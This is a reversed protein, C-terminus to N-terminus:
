LWNKLTKTKNKVETSLPLTQPSTSNKQEDEFWQFGRPEGAITKRPYKIEPYGTLCSNIELINFLEAIYPIEYFDSKQEDEEKGNNCIELQKKKFASIFSEKNLPEQGTEIEGNQTLFNSYRKKRDILFSNEEDIKIEVTGLGLPKGMGIKHYVKEGERNRLDLAFLLLGLEYESLNVFDITAKFKSNRLTEVSVNQNDIIIDDKSDGPGRRYALDNQSHHYYLKRGRIKSSPNNYDGGLLYFYTCSPKPSSLIKLPVDKETGSSSLSTLRGTGVSVKGSIALQKNSDKLETSGFINCVPCLENIDVCVKPIDNDNKIVDESSYEYKKRPIQTYSIYRERKNYFILDEIRLSEPEDKGKERLNLKRQKLIENYEKVVAKDIMEGSERTVYSTLDEEDYKFFLVDQTKTEIEGSKKLKCQVIIEGPACAKLKGKDVNIEKLYYKEFRKGPGVMKKNIRAYFLENKINKLRPEFYPIKEGNTSITAKYYFETPDEDIINSSYIKVPKASLNKGTRNFYKNLGAVCGFEKGDDRKYIADKKSIRKIEVPKGSKEEYVVAAWVSGNKLEDEIFFSTNVKTSNLKVLIANEDRDIDKVIYTDRSLNSIEKQNNKDSPNLRYYIYRKDYFALCSNSLIEILSRILGKITTSPLIPNGGPDKCFEMIEHTKDRYDGPKDTEICYKSTGKADICIQRLKGRVWKAREKLADLLEQSTKYQEVPKTEPLSDLHEIRRDSIKFYYERNLDLNNISNGDLLILYKKKKSDPIFISIDKVSKISTVIQGSYHGSHFKTFDTFPTRLVNKDARVFNYPNIFKDDPM